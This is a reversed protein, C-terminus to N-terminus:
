IENVIEGLLIGEPSRERISVLGFEGEAASGAPVGIRVYRENHGVLYPIGGETNEEEFLM